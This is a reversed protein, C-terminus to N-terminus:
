EVGIMVEEAVGPWGKLGLRTAVPGENMVGGTSLGPDEEHVMIPRGILRSYELAHRMVGSDTIPRGDDSFAVAGAEVLDAMETLERGEMQRTVTALPYVRVAGEVRAARRIYEVVARTDVVPSTNAMSCVSTFGGRAAARTRKAPRAPGDALPLRGHCTENRTPIALHRLRSIAGAGHGTAVM